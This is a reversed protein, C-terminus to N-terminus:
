RTVSCANYCKALVMNSGGRAFLYNQFCLGMQAFYCRCDLCKWEDEPLSVVKMEQRQVLPLTYIM